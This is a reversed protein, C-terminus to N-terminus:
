NENDSGRDEANGDSRNERGARGFAASQKKAEAFRFFQEM